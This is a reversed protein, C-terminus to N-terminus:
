CLLATGCYGRNRLPRSVAGVTEAAFHVLLPQRLRAHQPKLQTQIRLCREKLEFTFDNSAYSIFVRLTSKQPLRSFTFPLGKHKAWREFWNEIESQVQEITDPNASYTLM